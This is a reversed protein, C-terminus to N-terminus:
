VLISSSKPLGAMPQSDIPGIFGSLTSYDLLKYFPNKVFILFTTPLM